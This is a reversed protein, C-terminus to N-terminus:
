KAFGFIRKLMHFLGSYIEGLSLFAFPTISKCISYILITQTSLILTQLAM